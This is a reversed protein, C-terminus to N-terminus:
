CPVQFFFGPFPSISNSVMMKQQLGNTEPLTIWGERLIGSDTRHQVRLAPKTGNGIGLTKKAILKRDLILSGGWTKPTKQESGLDNTSLWAGEFNSTIKKGIIRKWTEVITSECSEKAMGTLNQVIWTPIPCKEISKRCTKQIYIELSHFGWSLVGPWDVIHAHTVKEVKDFSRHKGPKIADMLFIHFVAGPPFNWTM